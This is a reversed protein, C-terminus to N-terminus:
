KIVWNNAEFKVKGVIEHHNKVLDSDADLSNHMQDLEEILLNAIALTVFDRKSVDIKACVFDLPLTLRNDFILYKNDIHNGLSILDCGIM